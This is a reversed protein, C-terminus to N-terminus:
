ASDQGYYIWVNSEGGTPDRDSEVYWHGNADIDAGNFIQSDTPTTATGTHVMSIGAMYPHPNSGVLIKGNTTPAVTTDWAMGGSTVAWLQRSSGSNYLLASGSYNGSGDEDTAVIIGGNFNTFAPNTTNSGSNILFFKDSTKFEDARLSTVNSSSIVTLNGKINVNSDSTAPTSSNISQTQFTVDGNIDGNFPVAIFNLEVNSILPKKRNSSVTAQFSTAQSGSTVSIQIESNNVNGLVGLMNNPGQPDLSITASDDTYTNGVASGTVVTNGDISLEQLGNPATGTFQLGAGAVTAKLALKGGIFQFANNSHQDIALIGSSLSLGDGAVASALKLGSAGLDFSTDANASTDLEVSLKPPNTSTFELGHGALSASDIGLESNDTITEGLIFIVGGDVGSNLDAITSATDGDGTNGYDGVFTAGKLAVNLEVANNGLFSGVSAAGGSIIMQLGAGGTLANGLNGIVGTVNSGDGSFSGSFAGGGGFTLVPNSGATSLGLTYPASAVSFANNGAPKKFVVKDNVAAAEGAESITLTNVPFTSGSLLVRKWNGM